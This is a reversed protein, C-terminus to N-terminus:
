SRSNLLSELEGARVSQRKRIDITKQLGEKFNVEPKWGLAETTKEFDM